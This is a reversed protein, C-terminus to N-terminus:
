AYIYEDKLLKIAESADLEGDLICRFLMNREHLYTSDGKLLIHLLHCVRREDLTGILRNINRSSFYSLFSLERECHALDIAADKVPEFREQIGRFFINTSDLVGTGLAFEREAGVLDGSKILDLTGGISRRLREGAYSICKHLSSVSVGLQEAVERYRYRGQLFVKVKARTKEHSLWEFGNVYAVLKMLLRLRQEDLISDTEVGLTALRGKVESVLDEIERFVLM